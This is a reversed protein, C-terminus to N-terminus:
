RRTRRRLLALAALAAVLALGGRGAGGPLGGPVGCSCGDGPKRPDPLAKPGPLCGALGDAGVVCSWRDPCNVVACPDDKCLGTLPVCTQAECTKLKCLDTTCQGNGPDCIQSPGCSVGACLDPRCKGRVCRERAPCGPLCLDVCDGREDCYQTAGCAKSACPPDQCRGDRCVEGKPCGLQRCDVCRGVKCIQPALCSTGACPDKCKGTGEDCLWDQPCLIGACKASKCLAPSFRGDCLYGAPCRPEGPRCLIECKCAVCGYGEGCPNGEDVEGNCDNDKCDCVEARPPVCGECRFGEKGGCVERGPRCEPRRLTALDYPACACEKGGLNEDVLGDCDNDIGDCLEPSPTSDVAMCVFRGGECKLEGAGCTGPAADCAEGAGPLTKGPPPNDVNGDCDDDVGNCIEAGGSVVPADCLTGLGDPRCLFAGSRRCAGSLGNDCTGGLPGPTLMPARFDEDIEGDCDDDVGNCQEAAPLVCGECSLPTAGRCATVGKKCRGKGVNEEKLGPCLCPLGVGPLPAEDVQDNCNDDLGNCIEAPPSVEGVVRVLAAKWAAPDAFDIKIPQARRGGSGRDTIQAYVEPTTEGAPVVAFTEVGAERLEAARAPADGGCGEDAGSTVLVVVDKRCRKRPDAPKVFRQFYLKAYGLSAALPVKAGCGRLEPDTLSAGDSAEKHDLWRRIALLNAGAPDYDGAAAPSFVKTVPVAVVEHAVEETFWTGDATEAASTKCGAGPEPPEVSGAYHGHPCGRDVAPTARAPFHALGFNATETGLEELAERLGEKLRFLRSACGAATCSPEAACAAAPGCKGPDGGCLLSGDKGDPGAPALMGESTDVLVLVHPRPPQAHVVPAWAVLAVGALVAGGVVKLL